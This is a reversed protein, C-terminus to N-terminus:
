AEALPPAAVRAPRFTRERIAETDPTAVLGATAFSDFADQWKATRILGFKKARANRNITMGSNDLRSIDFSKQLILRTSPWVVGRQHTKWLSQCLVVDFTVERLIKDARAFAPATWILRCDFKRLQQVAKGFARDRGTDRSSFMAGAEDLIVTCSGIAAMLDPLEEVGDISYHEVSLGAINTIIPRGRRRQDSLAVAVASLSKGSGNVGVYASIPRPWLM